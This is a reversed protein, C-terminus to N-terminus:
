SIGLIIVSIFNIPSLYLDRNLPEKSITNSSIFSVNRKFSLSWFDCGKSASGGATSELDNELIHLYSYFCGFYCHASQFVLM